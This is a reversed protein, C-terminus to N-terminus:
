DEEAARYIRWQEASEDVLRYRSSAAFPDRGWAGDAATLVIVRCDYETALKRVDAPSGDGAFVRIFQANIEDTRQSGLTTYVLALERGAFCSRRDSLLAWSINVPWPTMAQLFLPNNGIREGPGAHRRMAAWLQPSAAFLRAAPEVRGGVYSRILDIGGPLGLIIAVGAATVALRARVAIWRSLGAAALVTLAMAAPLIARWGLDDNQALTSAFVWCVALSILALVALGSAVRKRDDELKRWSSRRTLAFIGVGYIAPLELPLLVLWYTPPDLLARTSDSFYAGLVPYFQLAIPAGRGTTATLQDRLLPAAICVALVAAIALAAIFHLGRWPDAGRLLLIAAAPGAVTFTVGGIWTSSEFGAAAVVALTAVLLASRRRTLESMLVVAVVACAAAMIHQPVWASQFLWGGLGGASDIVSDVNRAGFIWELVMRASATMSLILVPIAAARGGLWAALGIMVALSAFASFWTMAVDAEWGSIGAVLALEAASFHWLYYYALRPSPDGFFPNGPPLGFKMMDDILAVKAHDFIPAALYVADGVIKPLVAAAPAMALLAALLYACRPIAIAIADARGAALWVAVAGLFTVGAMTRVDTASFPLALFVLLAIACHVAWGVVPAMPLALAPVVRRTIALGLSTWLLMAVAAGIAANLTSAM